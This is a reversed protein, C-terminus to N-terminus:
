LAGTVCACITYVFQFISMILSMLQARSFACAVEVGDYGSDQALQACTAFDKITMEVAWGPLGIPTFPSIPAQIRSPAVQERLTVFAV